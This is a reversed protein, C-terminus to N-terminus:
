KGKILSEPHRELYDTLHKISKTTRTMEDLLKLLKRNVEATSDVYNERASNMMKDTDKVLRDISQVSSDVKPITNTRIDQILAKMENGIEEFPISAIRQMIIQANNKLSEIETPVTPIVYYGYEQKPEEYPMDKFFDFDIYLEGTLLNGSKLQAHFGKKLLKTFIPLNVKDEKGQEGGIISFREPEIKILIPIKFDATDSNGVLSFSVVEGIKVGRFEVPAGISLGRISDNFYVWFFLVRKYQLKKAEKINKYLPFRYGAEVPKGRGHIPFNDFALGGMMLAILSETQIEIGDASVNATVGSANYFRTKSDVLKDFPSKIFVEIDVAKNDTDLKYSAVSGAKLQKYYIPSGVELSGISDAKLKFTRGEEGSTVVPIQDLGKFHKLRKEGKKPDIVIYVGSLLTDLGQIEGVGVKAQVVWFRTNESLFAEMNKDLEATVKVSKLEKGFSVDTVKGVEVDKYKIVTKDAQIGAASKFTIEVEPGKESMSQFFLMAGIVLAVIPVIWVTSIGKKKEQWVAEKIANKEQETPM